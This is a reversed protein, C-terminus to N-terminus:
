KKDTPQQAEGDGSKEQNGKDGAAIEKDAKPKMLEMFKNLSIVNVDIEDVPDPSYTLPDLGTTKPNLDVLTYLKFYEVLNESLYSVLAVNLSVHHSACLIDHLFIQLM